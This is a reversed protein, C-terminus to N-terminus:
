QLRLAAYEGLAGLMEPYSPFRVYFPYNYEGGCILLPTEAPPEAHLTMQYGYMYWESSADSGLRLKGTTALMVKGKPRMVYRTIGVVRGIKYTGANVTQPEERFDRLELECRPSFESAAGALVGNQFVARIQGPAIIINQYLTFEGGSLERFLNGSIRPEGDSQCGSMGLLAVLLLIIRRM